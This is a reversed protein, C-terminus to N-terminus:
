VLRNLVVELEDQQAAIVGVRELQVSCDVAGARTARVILQLGRAKLYTPLAQVTGAPLARRGISGAVVAAVRAPDLTLAQPEPRGSRWLGFALDAIPAEWNSLAFDIAGVSTPPEGDVLLNDTTFDHILLRPATAHDTTALEEAVQELYERFRRVGDSGRLTVDLRDRPAVAALEDIAPVLPRPAEMEIGEVADHYRAMFRGVQGPDPRPHWGLTHGPQFTVLTWLAGARARELQM